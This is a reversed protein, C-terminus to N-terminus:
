KATSCSDCREDLLPAIIPVYYLGRPGKHVFEAVVQSHKMVKRFSMAAITIWPRTSATLPISQHAIPITWVLPGIAATLVKFSGESRSIMISQRAM